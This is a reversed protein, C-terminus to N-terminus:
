ILRSTLQVWFSIEDPSMSTQVWDRAGYSILTKPPPSDAHVSMTCSYVLIHSAQKSSLYTVYTHILTSEQKM